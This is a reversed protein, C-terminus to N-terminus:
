ISFTEQPTPKWGGGRVGTPPPPNWGKWGTVTTFLTKRKNKKERKGPTKGDKM